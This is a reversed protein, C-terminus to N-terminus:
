SQRAENWANFEEHRAPAARHRAPEPTDAYEIGSSESPPIILRALSVPNISCLGNAVHPNVSVESFMLQGADAASLVSGLRRTMDLRTALLRTAGAGAFSQAIEAAEVADGGAALVLIPEADVSNVLDRLFSMDNDNFPNLGPSDIFTLGQMDRNNDLINRLSDPGRAKHLEIDLIRTFASLQETAGARVSDATIVSVPRGALRARAALKAM